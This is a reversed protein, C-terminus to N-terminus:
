FRGKAVNEIAPVFGSQSDVLIGAMDQSNRKIINM